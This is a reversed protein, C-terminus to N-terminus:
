FWPKQWAFAYESRAPIDECSGKDMARSVLFWPDNKISGVPVAQQADFCKEMTALNVLGRREPDQRLWHVLNGLADPNVMGFHRVPNRAYLWLGERWGALGIERNPGATEALQRMLGDSESHRQKDLEHVGAGILLVIWIGLILRCHRMLWRTKWREFLVPWVAAVLLAWAFVAPYIYLKRKGTSLTFFLLVLMVWGLLIIARGDKRKWLAIWEKVLWPLILVAPLWYKPIVLVFFYWFPERHHWANVLREGTQRFLIDKLYAHTEADGNIGATWLVPGLWVLITLLAALLGAWWKGASRPHRVVGGADVKIAYLYPLLILAPLFGVGKSIIGFGCAACALYYWIWGPAVLLHRGFGYLALNIWLALLADIQGNRLVAHTQYTLLFVLGAILARRKDYLRGALDYILVTSVLGSLLGPFLLAFRPADTLWVLGALFWFFLPPKDGYIEGARHPILWSDGQLMELAIGLFREEDINGPLRMGIGLGLVVLGLVLLLRLPKDQRLPIM